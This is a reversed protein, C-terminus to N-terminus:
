PSCCSFSLRSVPGSTQKTHPLLLHPVVLALTARAPPVTVCHSCGDACVCLPLVWFQRWVADAFGILLAQGECAVNVEERRRGLEDMQETFNTFQDLAKKNVHTYKSLEAQVKKLDSHLEQVCISLSCSSFVCWSVAAFLQGRPDLGQM